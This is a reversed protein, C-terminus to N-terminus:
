PHPFITDSLFIGGFAKITQIIKGQIIGLGATINHTNGNQVTNMEEGAVQRLAEGGRQWEFNATYSYQANIFNLFPFKAFPLEYNLQLEQVFRNSEGYDFFGDWIAHDENIGSQENDLENFYNRVINNSAATLNLRLSKTVNQNIAYQWNFLYNRQQLFPLALLDEGGSRVERFQQQSFSRDITANVSFSNPLLNLNVDKLWKWYRSTLISDKKALPA